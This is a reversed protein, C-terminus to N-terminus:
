LDNYLFFLPIRFSFVFSFIIKSLLNCSFREVSLQQKYCNFKVYM